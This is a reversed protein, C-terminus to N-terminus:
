RAFHFHDSREDLRQLEVKILLDRGEPNVYLLLEDPEGIKARQTPSRSKPAKAMMVDPVRRVAGAGSDAREADRRVGARARRADAGPRHHRRGVAARHRALPQGADEYDDRIPQKFAEAQEPTWNDADRHVTALVSAAQEGGM